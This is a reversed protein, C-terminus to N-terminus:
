TKKKEALYERSARFIQNVFDKDFGSISLFAGLSPFRRLTKLQDIVRQRAEPDDYEVLNFFCAGGLNANWLDAGELYTGILNSGELHAGVLRAGELNCNSFSLRRLDLYSLDFVIGNEVKQSVSKTDSSDFNRNQVLPFIDQIVSNLARIDAQSKPQKVPKKQQNEKSDDEVHGLSEEEEYVGFLIKLINRQQSEKQGEVLPSRAALTEWDRYLAALQFYSASVEAPKDGYRRPIIEHLRDNLTKILEADQKREERRGKEDEIEKQAKRNEESSKYSVAVSVVVGM